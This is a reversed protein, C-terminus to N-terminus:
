SNLGFIAHSFHWDADLRACQVGLATAAMARNFLRPPQAIIPYDALFSRAITSILRIRVKTSSVNLAGVPQGSCCAGGVHPGGDDIEAADNGAVPMPREDLAVRDEHLVATDDGGARGARALHLAGIDDDIGVLGGRDGAQDVGMDVDGEAIIGRALARDAVQFAVQMAAHGGRDRGGLDVDGAARAIDGADLRQREGRLAAEGGIARAAHPYVRARDNELGAEVLRIEGLKGLVAHPQRLGPEARHLGGVVVHRQDRRGLTGAQHRGAM